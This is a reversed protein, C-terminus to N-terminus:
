TPWGTELSTGPKFVKFPLYPIVDRRNKTLSIPILELQSEAHM